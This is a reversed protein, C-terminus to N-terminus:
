AQSYPHSVERAFAVAARSKQLAQEPYGLHWLALSVFCFSSMVPDHGYLFAPARHEKSEDLAISRELHTRAASLEGRCFFSLGLTWHAEVLWTTDQRSGALTLLQEGLEYAAKHEPRSVYFGWLGALVSFLQATEGLQQCLRHARTYVAATEPAAYGKAAILAPGLTIQLDLEQQTREPTDPLATLLELATTLQTIAEVNASRQVAQQGALQLYDVAKQTNDSRSYHHALDSYRDDLKYRYVEEIARAAREHLVKRREQLLSNYAVEQTLAHKFIYEVDPFAPQEYIFEAAQLHALQGYLEAEPQAVVKKLLSASFERGIVALTQLLAKEDPPLRDMRAALIGQVTTPLRIDQPLPARGHGRVTLMGQERLEQVIEEMFFPNGETKDLIFRKLASLDGDTM